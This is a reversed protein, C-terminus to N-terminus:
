WLVTSVISPLLRFLLPQFSFFCLLLLLLSFIPIVVVAYRALINFHESGNTDNEM